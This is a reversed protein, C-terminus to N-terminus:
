VSMLGHAQEHFIPFNEIADQLTVIASDLKSNRDELTQGGLMILSASENLSGMLKRLALKSDSTAPTRHYHNLFNHLSGLVNNLVLVQARREPYRPQLMSGMVLAQMITPITAYCADSGGFFYCARRMMNFQQIISTGGFLENKKDAYIALAENKFTESSKPDTAESSMRLLRCVVPFVFVHNPLYITNFALREPPTELTVKIDKNISAIHRYFGKALEKDMTEDVLSISAIFDPGFDFNPDDLFEKHYRNMLLIFDEYRNVPKPIESDKREDCGILLSVAVVAALVLIMAQLSM